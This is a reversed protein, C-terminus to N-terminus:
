KKPCESRSASKTIEKNNYHLITTPFGIIQGHESETLEKSTKM